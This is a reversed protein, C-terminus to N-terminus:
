TENNEEEEDNPIFKIDGGNLYQTYGDENIVFARVVGEDNYQPDGKGDQVWGLLKYLKKDPCQVTPYADVLMTPGGDLDPAYLRRWIKSM